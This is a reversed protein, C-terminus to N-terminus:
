SSRYGGNPTFLGNGPGGTSRYGLSTPPKTGGSAPQPKGALSPLKDLINAIANPIAVNPKGPLDPLNIGPAAMAINNMAKSLKPMFAPMKAELMQIPITQQALIEKISPM